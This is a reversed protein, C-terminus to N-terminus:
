IVHLHSHEVVVSQLLHVRKFSVCVVDPGDDNVRGVGVDEGATTPVSLVDVTCIRTHIYM